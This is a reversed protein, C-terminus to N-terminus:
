GRLFLGCCGYCLCSLRWVGGGGLGCRDASVMVLVLVVACLRGYGYWWSGRCEFLGSSCALVGRACVVAAEEVGNYRFDEAYALDLWDGKVCLRLFEARVDGGVHLLM